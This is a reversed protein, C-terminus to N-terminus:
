RTFMWYKMETLVHWKSRVYVLINAWPLLIRATKWSGLDVWVSDFFATLGVYIFTSWHLCIIISKKFCRYCYFLQYSEWCFQLKNIVWWDWESGRSFSRQLLGGSGRFNGGKPVGGRMGESNRNGKRPPPPPFPYKRSSNYVNCNGINSWLPFFNLKLTRYAFCGECSLFQVFYFHLDRITERWPAWQSSICNSYM